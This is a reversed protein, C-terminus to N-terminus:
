LRLRRLIDRYEDEDVGLDHPDVVLQGEYNSIRRSPLIPWSRSGKEEDGIHVSVTLAKANNQILSSLETKKFTFRKVAENLQLDFNAHCLVTQGQRLLVFSRLVTNPALIGVKMEVSVTVNQNDQISLKVPQQSRTGDKARAELSIETVEVRELLEESSVVQFRFNAVEKSGIALILRCHGPAALSPIDRIKIAVNGVTVPGSSLTLPVEALVRRGIHRRSLSIQLTTGLSPVLSNFGSSSVEIEPILLDSTNPVHESQYRISGCQIFLQQNKALLNQLVLNETNQVIEAVSLIRFEYRTLVQNRKFLQLECHGPRLVREQNRLPIMLKRYLNTGAKSRLWVQDETVEGSDLNLLRIGMRWKIMPAEYDFGKGRVTFVPIIAQDTEFVDTTKERAGDRVVFLDPKSLSLSQLIAEAKEAKIQRRTKHDFEFQGLVRDDLLVEICYRGPGPHFLDPTIQMLQEFHQRGRCVVIKHTQRGLEEGRNSPWVAVGFSLETESLLPDPQPADLDMQVMIGRFDEAVVGLPIITGRHNIASAHIAQVSANRKIAQRSVQVCAELPVVQFKKAAIPKRGLYFCLWYDGPIKDFLGKAPGIREKWVFQKGNFRLRRQWSIMCRPQDPDTLLAAGMDVALQDFLSRHEPNGLEIELNYELNEVQDHISNCCVRGAPRVVVLDLNRIQLEDLLREKDLRRFDVNGILRDGLPHLVQLRFVEHRVAPLANFDLCVNTTGSKQTQIISYQDPELLLSGDPALLRLALPRRQRYIGFLPWRVTLDLHIRQAGGVYERSLTAPTNDVTSTCRINILRVQLWFPLLWAIAEAVRAFLKLGYQVAWNEM